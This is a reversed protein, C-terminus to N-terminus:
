ARLSSLKLPVKPDQVDEISRPQRWHWREGDFRGARCDWSVLTGKSALEPLHRRLLGRAGHVDAADVDIAAMGYICDDPEEMKGRLGHLFREIM